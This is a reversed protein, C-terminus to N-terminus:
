SFKFADPFATTIAEFCNAFGYEQTAYAEVTITLDVLHAMEENDWSAPIQITDFLVKEEGTVLANEFFVYFTYTGSARDAVQYVSYTDDGYVPALNNYAKMTDNEKVIGGSILTQIGLLDNYGTGMVENLDSNPGDKVIIKAAVYANESGLNKITPDKFVSQGPYLKGYDFVDDIDDEADGVDNRKDGDAILNGREDAKVVAETLDIDVNGATFTNTAEDTDTFYALTGGVVAVALLCVILCLALIKKKNM